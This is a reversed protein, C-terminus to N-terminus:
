CLLYKAYGMQGLDGCEGVLVKQHLLVLPLSFRFGRNPQELFLLSRFLHRAYDPFRLLGVGGQAVCLFHQLGAALWCLGFYILLVIDHWLSDSPSPRTGRSLTSPKTLPLSRRDPSYDGRTPWPPLPGTGKTMVRQDTDTSAKPRGGGMSEISADIM